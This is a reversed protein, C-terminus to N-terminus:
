FGLLGKVGEKIGEKAAEKATEKAAEKAGEKAGEKASEGMMKFIDGTNRPMEIVEPEGTIESKAGENGYALLEMQGDDTIMKVLGMFKVQDSVWFDGTKEGNEDKTILHIADFTGALVTIKETGINEFGEDYSVEEDQEKAIEEAQAEMEELEEEDLQFVMEVPQEDNQQTVFRLTQNKQTPDGSSLIKIKSVDGSEDDTTIFEYWFLNEQMDVVSFKMKGDNEGTMQYEAWAGVTPDWDAPGYNYMPFQAFAVFALIVLIAARKM